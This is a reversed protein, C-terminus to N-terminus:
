RCRHLRNIGPHQMLAAPYVLHAIDQLLYPLAIVVCDLNVGLGDIQGVASGLRLRRRASEALAPARRIGAHHSLQLGIQRLQQREKPEGSMQPLLQAGGVNDFATKHFNSAASPGHDAEDVHLAHIPDDVGDELSEIQFPFVAGEPNKCLCSSTVGSVVAPERKPFTTDNREEPWFLVWRM